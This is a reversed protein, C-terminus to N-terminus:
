FDVYHFGISKYVDSARKLDLMRAIALNHIEDLLIISVLTISITLFLKKNM